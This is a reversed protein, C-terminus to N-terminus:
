PVPKRENWGPPPDAESERRVWPGQEIVARLGPPHADLTDYIHDAPRNASSGPSDVLIEAVVRGDGRSISRANEIRWGLKDGLDYRLTQIREAAIVAADDPDAPNLPFVRHPWGWIQHLPGGDSRKLRAPSDNLAEHVHTNLSAGSATGPPLVAILDLFCGGQLPPPIVLGEQYPVCVVALVPVGLLTEIDATVVRPPM